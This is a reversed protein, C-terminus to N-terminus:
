NGDWWVKTAVGDSGQNANSETYHVSNLTAENAPYTLRNPFINQNIFTGDYNTFAPYGTRRYEAYSEYSNQYTFSIWKQTIINELSVAPVSSLYANIESNTISSGTYSKMNARIGSEFLLQADGSWWGALTAESQLFCVEAYSMLVGPADQHKFWDGLLSVNSGDNNYSNWVPSGSPVLNPVGNWDPAGFLLSEATPEAFVKLRPDNTSKLKDVLFKSPYNRGGSQGSSILEFLPNKIEGNYPFQTNESNSGIMVVGQLSAIEQQTRLPDVFRLRLALRLRLSNAFAKWKNVSGNYVPDTNGPFSVKSSDMVSVANKLKDLLAYYIASQVDYKPSYNLVDVGKLAESYPINGFLDTLQQFLYVQWIRAISTKNVLSPDDKTFRIVEQANILSQSYIESWLNDKGNNLQYEKGADVGKFSAFYMTWNMLMWYQVDVNTIYSGMGKSVSYTFLYDPNASDAANPNVNLEDM